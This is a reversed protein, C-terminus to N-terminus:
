PSDIIISGQMHPRSGDMISPQVPLHDLIVGFSSLFRFAAVVAAFRFIAGASTFGFACGFFVIEASSFLTSAAFSAARFNMAPTFAFGRAAFFAGFGAAGAAFAAAGFGTVDRGAGGGGAGFAAAFGFVRTL